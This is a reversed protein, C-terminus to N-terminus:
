VSTFSSTLTTPRASLELFFRQMWGSTHVTSYVLTASGPDQIGHKKTKPFFLRSRPDPFFMEPDYKRSSLKLNKKNFFKFEKNRILIRSGTGKQDLIRSGTGKQDLIRPGTGKQDLIRSPCIQIRFVTCSTNKGVFISPIWDKGREHIQRLPSLLGCCILGVKTRLNLQEKKQECRVVQEM